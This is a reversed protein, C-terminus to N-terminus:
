RFFCIASVTGSYEAAAATSIFAGGLLTTSLLTRRILKTKIISM